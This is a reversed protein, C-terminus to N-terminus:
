VSINLKNIIDKQANPFLHGYTKFVMDVNDGLREAIVYVTSLQNEGKNILLSVHSHRLDHIRIQKVSSLKVYRDFAHKLTQFPLFKGDVGFVFESTKNKQLEQLHTILVEPMLINRYSNETKPTTIRYVESVVEGENVARGTDTAKTLTKTIKVICNKFDIDEWKLACAEGKRCGTLYLFLFVCKYRFNDVVAIFREFEDQTWYLMERRAEKSKKFGKVTSFPNSIGYVKLYEFFGTFSSRIASKYKASLGKESLSNQWKILDATTIDTVKYKSFTPVVYKDFRQLIALYSSEKVNARLNEKYEAYLAMFDFTSAQTKPHSPHESIWQEYGKQAASQTTWPPTGTLRKHEEVGQENIWRFRVTYPPLPKCKAGCDCVKKKSETKCKTCYFAKPIITPM